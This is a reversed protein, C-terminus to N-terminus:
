KRHFYVNDHYNKVLDLLPFRYFYFTILCINFYEPVLQGLELGFQEGHRLDTLLLLLVLLNKFSQPSFQLLRLHPSGFLPSASDTIRSSAFM